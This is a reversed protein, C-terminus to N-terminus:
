SSDNNPWSRIKRRGTLKKLRCLECFSHKAGCEKDRRELLEFISLVEFLVSQLSKSSPEASGALAPFCALPDCFSKLPRAFTEEVEGSCKESFDFIELKEDNEVQFLSRGAFFLIKASCRSM